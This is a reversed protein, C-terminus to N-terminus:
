NNNNENRKQRKLGYELVESLCCGGNYFSTYYTYETDSVKHMITDDTELEVDAVEWLEGDVEILQECDDTNDFWLRRWPGRDSYKNYECERAYAEQIEEETMGNPRNENAAFEYRYRAEFYKEVDNDFESLDVKKIKGKHYEQCSM